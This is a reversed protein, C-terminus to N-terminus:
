PFTGLHVFPKCIRRNVRKFRSFTKWEEECMDNLVKCFSMWLPSDKQQEETLKNVVKRYRGASKTQRNCVQFCHLINQFLRFLCFDISYQFTWRVRPLLRPYGDQVGGSNKAEGTGILSACCAFHTSQHKGSLPRVFRLMGSVVMCVRRGPCSRLNM